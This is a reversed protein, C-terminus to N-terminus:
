IFEKWFDKKFYKFIRYERNVAQWQASDFIARFKDSLIAQKIKEGEEKSAIRIGFAFECIGYEGSDDVIADLYTGGINIIVKPIGIHGDNKSSYYCKLGNTKTISYVCPYKHIDDKAESMWAKDHGYDTRSYIVECREEGSKAILNQIIEFQSNPVFNCEDMKIKIKDGNDDVVLTSGNYKSNKLIYWDYRTGCGFVKLGDDVGHIELYKLDRKKFEDFLVHDPKRWASPHILAMYGDEKVLELSKHVFKDWLSTRNGKQQKHTKESPKEKKVNKQYPPNGVVVDFKRGEKKEKLMEFFDEKMVNVGKYRESRAIAAKEKCDTLFWIRELPVGFDYCLIEVFELNFVCFDKNELSEYGKLKDIICHCLDFPTHINQLNNPVNEIQKTIEKLAERFGDTQAKTENM